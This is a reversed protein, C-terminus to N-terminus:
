VPTGLITQLESLRPEVQDAQKCELTLRLLPETNSPRVNFWWDEFEVTIGDLWDLKGGKGQPGYQEEIMRLTQSKDEVEFNIEGTSHYTMLPQVLASLTKDRNEEKRLLNLIEIMTLIASDAQYAQKFYCHGSLEGGFAAGQERMVAKAFSHGVRVRIPQGGRQRITEPVIWSSRLDYMISAGPERELIEQAILVTTIDARVIEGREDVAVCRDADGDFAVGLDCGERRVTERLTDLTDAKLPNAEHNPFTCDIEPFLPIIEAGLQEFISLYLGGMGNATDVAVKLKRATTDRLFRLVFDRYADSLDHQTVGLKAEATMMQDTEVRREFEAIGSDRSIPIADARTFKFGNYQPPNHSATAMVGADLGLSGVGFYLMPTTTQGFDVVEAGGTTMGHILAPVLDDGTPRADRGLGIKVSPVSPGQVRRVEELIFNAFVRGIKEALSTDLQDPVIGRIDYAKFISM